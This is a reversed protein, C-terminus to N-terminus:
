QQLEEFVDVGSLGTIESIQDITLEADRLERVTMKRNVEVPKLGAERQVTEKQHEAYGYKDQRYRRSEKLSRMEVGKAKLIDLIPQTSCGFQAALQRPSKKKEVYLYVIRDAQEWLDKRHKRRKKPRLTPKRLQVGEERLVRKVVRASFPYGIAIEKLTWEMDTYRHVIRNRDASSVKYM